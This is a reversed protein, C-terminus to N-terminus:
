ATQLSENKIVMARELISINNNFMKVIANRQYELIEKQLDRSSEIKSILDKLHEINKYGEEGYPLVRQNEFKQPLKCLPHVVINFPLKRHHGILISGLAASEMAQQGSGGRWNRVYIFYKCRALSCHYEYGDGIRPLVIANLSSTSLESFREKLVPNEKTTRGETIIMDKSIHSFDEIIKLSVPYHFFVMQPLSSVTDPGELHNMHLDYGEVIGKVPNIYDWYCFVSSYKKMISEPIYPNSCIVVDYISFDINEIRPFDLPRELVDFRKRWWENNTSKYQNLYWEAEVHIVRVDARLDYILGMSQTRGTCTRLIEFIDNKSIIDSLGLVGADRFDKLLLIKM